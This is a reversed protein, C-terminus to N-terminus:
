ILVKINNQLPVTGVDLAGCAITFSLVSSVVQMCVHGLRRACVLGLEGLEM